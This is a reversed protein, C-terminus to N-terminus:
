QEAENIIRYTRDQESCSPCKLGISIIKIMKDLYSIDRESEISKYNEIIQYTIKM